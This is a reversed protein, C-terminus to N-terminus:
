FLKFIDNKVKLGTQQSNKCNREISVEVLFKYMSSNIESRHFFTHIFNSEQVLDVGIHVSDFAFAGSCDM